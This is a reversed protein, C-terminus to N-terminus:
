ICGRLALNVNRQQIYDATKSVTTHGTISVIGPARGDIGDPVYLLAPIALGPYSEFTIKEIHFGDRRLTGKSAIKLDWKPPVLDALGIDTLIERRLDERRALWEQKTQPLPLPKLQGTLFERMMAQAEQEPLLKRTLWDEWATKERDPGSAFALPLLLIAALALAILDGPRLRM